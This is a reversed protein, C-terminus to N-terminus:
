SYITQVWGGVAATGVGGRYMGKKENEGFM